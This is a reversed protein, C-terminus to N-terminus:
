IDKVKHTIINKGMENVQYSISANVVKIFDDAVELTLHNGKHISSLAEYIDNAFAFPM